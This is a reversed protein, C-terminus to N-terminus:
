RPPKPRSGIWRRADAYLRLKSIEKMIKRHEASEPRLSLADNFAIAGVRDTHGIVVVEPAPRRAIEAFVQQLVQQSEPTLQDRGEVFYLLFSVPRPPLASLAEGFERNVADASSVAAEIRGPEKIQAAAYPADLVREAGGQSVSVAGTEGSGGVGHVVTYGSIKLNSFIVLVEDEYKERCMITLMKM